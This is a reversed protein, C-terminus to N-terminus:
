AAPRHFRRGRSLCHPSGGTRDINAIVVKAHPAEVLFLELSCAPIGLPAVEAAL